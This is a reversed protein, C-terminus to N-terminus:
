IIILRILVETLVLEETGISTHSPGIKGMGMGRSIKMGMVMGVGMEVGGVGM